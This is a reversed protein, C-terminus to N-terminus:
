CLYIEEILTITKVSKRTLLSLYVDLPTGEQAMHNGQLKVLTKKKRMKLTETATESKSVWKAKLHIELFILPVKWAIHLDPLHFVGYLSFCFATAGLGNFGLSCIVQHSWCKIAFLLKIYTNYSKIMNRHQLSIYHYTTEKIKKKIEQLTM